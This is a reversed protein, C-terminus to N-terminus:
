VDLNDCVCSHTHTHAAVKFSSLTFQFFYVCVRGINTVSLFWKNDNFRQPNTIGKAM